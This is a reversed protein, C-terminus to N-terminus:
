TGNDVYPNQKQIFSIRASTGNLQFNNEIYNIIQTKIRQTIGIFSGYINFHPPRNKIQTVYKIKINRPVKINSIIKNLKATKLTINWKKYMNNIANCINQNNNKNSTHIIPINKYKDLKFDNIDCKNVIIIIARGEKVIKNCIRQDHKTMKGDIVYLVVHSMEIASNTDNMILKQKYQIGATDIFIINKYNVRVSDTTVGNEDYVLLKNENIISNILSSKGSNQMGVVAVKINLSQFNTKKNSISFLLDNIKNYSDNKLCVSDYEIYQDNKNRFITIIKKNMRRITSLLSMDDHIVYLIVDVNQSMELVKESCISFMKNKYSIGPADILEYKNKIITHRFNRTLGEQNSVLAHKKGCLKNFITSKGVNPLGVLLVKM